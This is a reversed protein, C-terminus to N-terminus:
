ILEHRTQSHYRGGGIDTLYVVMQTDRLRKTLIDRKQRKGKSIVHKVTASKDEM